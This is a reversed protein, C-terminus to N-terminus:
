LSQSAMPQETLLRSLGQKSCLSLWQCLSCHETSGPQCPHLADSLCESFRLMQVAVWM